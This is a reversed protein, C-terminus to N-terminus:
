LTGMGLKRMAAEDLVEISVGATGALAERVRMVFSEPYIVNAPENALDRSLRVGEALPKWRNAFAAGAVSPNAGVLTV